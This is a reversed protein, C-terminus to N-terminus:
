KNIIEKIQSLNLNIQHIIDKTSTKFNKLDKNESKLVENENGIEALEKQLNNIEQNLNEVVNKDPANEVKDSKVANIKDIIITELNKLAQNLYEKAQNINNM